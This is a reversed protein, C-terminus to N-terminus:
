SKNMYLMLNKSQGWVKTQVRQQRWQQTDCGSKPVVLRHLLSGREKIWKRGIMMLKEPMATQCSVDTSKMWQIFTGGFDGLVDDRCKNRKSIWGCRLISSGYNRTTIYCNQGYGHSKPFNYNNQIIICLVSSWGAKKYWKICLRLSFDAAKANWIDGSCTKSTTKVTPPFRKVNMQKIIM